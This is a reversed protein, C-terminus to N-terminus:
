SPVRHESTEKAVLRINDARKVTDHCALCREFLQPEWQRRPMERQLWSHVKWRTLRTSKSKERVKIVPYPVNNEPMLDLERPALMVHNGAM